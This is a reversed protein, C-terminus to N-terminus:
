ENHKSRKRITHICRHCDKEVADWYLQVLKNRDTIGTKARINSLHFEVTKLSIDLKSSIGKYSYGKSLVKLCQHERPTLSLDPLFDFCQRRAREPIVKVDFGMNTYKGAHKKADTILDVYTNSFYNIFKKLDMMQNLYVQIIETNAVDTAFTWCEYYKQSYRLVSIGNGFGHNAAADMLIDSRDRPWIYHTYNHNIMDLVMPPSTQINAIYFKMYDANDALHVYKGDEYIRFYYFSTIGFPALLATVGKMVDVNRLVFDRQDELSVFTPKMQDPM